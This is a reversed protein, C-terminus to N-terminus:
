LRHHDVEGGTTTYTLDSVDAAYLPLFACVFLALLAQLPKM